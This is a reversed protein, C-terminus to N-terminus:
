LLSWVDRGQSDKDQLSMEGSHNKSQTHGMHLLNGQDVCCLCPAPCLHQIWPLCLCAASSKPWTFLQKSLARHALSRKTGRLRGNSSGWMIVRQGPCLTSPSVTNTKWFSVVHTPPQLYLIIQLLGQCRGSIIYVYMYLFRCSYPTIAKSSWPGQLDGNYGSFYIKMGKLHCSPWQTVGGQQAPLGTGQWTSFLLACPCIKLQHFYGPSGELWCIEVEKWWCIRAEETQEQIGADPALDKEEQAPLSASPCQHETQWLCAKPIAQMDAWGSVWFSWNGEQLLLVRGSLCSSTYDM